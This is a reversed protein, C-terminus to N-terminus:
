IFKSMRTGCKSCTGKLMNRNGHKVKHENKMERMLRCKVCYGKTM